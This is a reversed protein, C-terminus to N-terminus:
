IELGSRAQGGEQFRGRTLADEGNSDFEPKEPLNSDM